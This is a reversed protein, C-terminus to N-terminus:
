RGAVPGENVIGAPILRRARRKGITKMTGVQLIFLLTKSAMGWVTMASAWFLLSSTLALVINLGASVFMLGAWVYGSAVVLDPVYLLAREPMYRTIWGRRLMACGILGYLITPKLMIFRPDHTVLTTASGVVIVVLSIWQLADVKERRWLRLGIQGIALAVGLAVSLPLSGTLTYLALFLLTSALDLLIARGGLLLDNM